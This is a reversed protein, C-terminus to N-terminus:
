RLWANMGNKGRRFSQLEFCHKASFGLSRMEVKPIHKPVEQVQQKPVQSPRIQKALPRTGRKRPAKKCNVVTKM